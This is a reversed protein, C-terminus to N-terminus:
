CASETDECFRYRFRRILDGDRRSIEDALQRDYYQQYHVRPSSNLPPEAIVAKALENPVELELGQLYALFDMRLSEFRLMTCAADDPFVQAFYYSMPGVGASRFPESEFASRLTDAFSLTRSRSLERFLPDDTVLTFYHYASVYWDWPNRVFGFCPLHRHTQPIDNVSPHGDLDVCNWDTPARRLLTQKVFTGGTKLLHVFVFHDCLLM